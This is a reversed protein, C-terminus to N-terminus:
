KILKIIAKGELVLESNGKYCLTSLYVLSKEHNIDTVKVVATVEEDFYVPKKFNMEQHLYISGPGPLKTGLLSSILSSYLFGHVIRQKFFSNAAFEKDLHIPNSDGSLESFTIVEEESFAKKIVAEQGVKIEDM